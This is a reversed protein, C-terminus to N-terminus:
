GSSADTEVYMALARRRDPSTRDVLDLRWIAATCAAVGVSLGLAVAAISPGGLYTWGGVILLGFAVLLGHCALVKGTARAGFRRAELDRRWPGNWALSWAVTGAIGGLSGAITGLGPTPIRSAVLVFLSLGIGVASAGVVVLAPLVALRRLDFALSRRPSFHRAVIAVLPVYFVAYIWVIWVPYNLLLAAGGGSPCSALRNALLAPCLVGTGGWVLFPVLFAVTVAVTVASDVWRRRAAYYVFVFINAFQKCGLSLYEAWKQRRGEFGVLGLTLLLLVPFDNYGSAALVVVYPQALLIATDFRHRVILVTLAWCALTFWKYSIGPIQLFMLLPLYVYYSRSPLTAGYQQYTFVMQQTYPDHGSLLFSAFRPTTFPEDTLGNGWGTLVSLVAFALGTFLLIYVFRNSRPVGIRRVLVPFALALAGLAIYAFPQSAYFDLWLLTILLFAPLAAALWAALGRAVDWRNVPGDSPRTM